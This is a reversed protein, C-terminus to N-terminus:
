WAAWDLRGVVVRQVTSHSAKLGRPAQGTLGGYGNPARGASLPSRQHAHNPHEHRSPGQHHRLWCLRRESHAFLMVQCGAILEGYLSSGALHIPTAHKKPSKTEELQSVAAGVYYPGVKAHIGGVLRLRGVAMKALVALTSPHLPRLLAEHGGSPRSQLMDAGKIRATDAAATM